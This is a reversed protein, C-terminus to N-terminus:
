RGVVLSSRTYWSRFGDAVGGGGGGSADILVGFWDDHLSQYEAETLERNFLAFIHWNAIFNGNGTRGGIGALTGDTGVGVGSGTSVDIALSGSELGYYWEAVSGTDYNAGLSFKTGSPLSVTSALNNGSSIFWHPKSASVFIGDNAASELMWQGGTRSNIAAFFGCGSALLFSPRPGPAASVWTVGAYGFPGDSNTGFYGRSVGKWTDTGYTVSSDVTESNAPVLDKAVGDDDVVVCATLATALGSSKLAYPM